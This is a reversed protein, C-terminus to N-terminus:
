RMYKVLEEIQQPTRNPNQQPCRSREKFWNEGEQEYRKLRKYFWVRSYGRTKGISGPREGSFYREIARKRDAAQKSEM